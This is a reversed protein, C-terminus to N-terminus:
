LILSKLTIFLTCSGGMSCGIDLINGKLELDYFSFLKDLEKVVFDQNGFQSLIDDPINSGDKYHGKNTENLWQKYLNNLQQM